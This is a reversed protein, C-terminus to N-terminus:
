ADTPQKDLSNERAAFAVKEAEHHPERVRYRAGGLPDEYGPERRCLPLYSCAVGGFPFCNWSQPFHSDLIEESIDHGVAAITPNESQQEQEAEYLQWMGDAGRLEQTRLQRLFGAYLVGPKQLPGLIQFQEAVVEPPLTDMVWGEVGGSREWVPVKAWGKGLTHRYGRPGPPKGKQVGVPTQDYYEHSWKWEAEEFPPNAPKYWGYCFVSGQRKLGGKSSTEWDWEGERRGKLCGLLYYHNCPEEFLKEAALCGLSMQVSHEHERLDLEGAATKFDMIGLVGDSRRRTILDPRLMLAVGSCGPTLDPRPRQDHEGPTGVGDGLGCDCGIVWETERESALIEFEARLWPLVVRIFGWCIGEILASQEAIVYTTEDSPAEAFEAGACKDHYRKVAETIKERWADRGEVSLIAGLAEHVAIGTALPLSESVSRIGTGAFRYEHFEARACRQRAAWRSRDTLIM